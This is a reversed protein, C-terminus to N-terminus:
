SCKNAPAIAANLFRVRMTPHAYLILSNRLVLQKQLM